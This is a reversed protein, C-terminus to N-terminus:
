GSLLMAVVMLDLDNEILGVGTHPPSIITTFIQPPDWGRVQHVTRHSSQVECVFLPVHLWYQRYCYRAGFLCVAADDRIM